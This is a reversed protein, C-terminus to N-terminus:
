GDVTVRTCAISGDISARRSAAGRTAAAGTGTSNSPGSPCRRGSGSSDTSQASSVRVRHEM